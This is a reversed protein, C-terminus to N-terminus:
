KDIDKDLFLVVKQYLLYADESEKNSIGKDRHYNGLIRKLTTLEDNSFQLFNGRCHLCINGCDLCIM